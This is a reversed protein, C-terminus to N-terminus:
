SRQSCSSRAPRASSRPPGSGPGIPAMARDTIYAARALPGAPRPEPPHRIPHGRDPTRPRCCTPFQGPFVTAQASPETSTSPTVTRKTSRGPAYLRRAAHRCGGRYRAIRPPPSSRPVPCRGAARVRTEGVGVTGGDSPLKWRDAASPRLGSGAPARPPPAAPVLAFGMARGVGAASSSSRGRSRGGDGVTDDDSDDDVALAPCDRLGGGHAPHGIPIGSADGRPSGGVAGHGGGRGIGGSRLGDRGAAAARRAPWGGSRCLRGRVPPFQEVPPPEYATRRFTRNAM